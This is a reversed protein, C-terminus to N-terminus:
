SVPIPKRKLLSNSNVQPELLNIDLYMRFNPAEISPIPVSKRLFESLKPKAFWVWSQQQLAFAAMSLTYTFPHTNWYFKIWLFLHHDHSYNAVGQGLRLPLFSLQCSLNQLVMDHTWMSIFQKTQLSFINIFWSRWMGSFTWTEGAHVPWM